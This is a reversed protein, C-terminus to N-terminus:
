SMEDTLDYKTKERGHMLCQLLLFTDFLWDLWSVGDSHMLRLDKMVCGCCCICVVYGYWPGECHRRQRATIRLRTPIFFATM